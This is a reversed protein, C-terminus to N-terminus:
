RDPYNAFPDDEHEDGQGAAVLALEEETLPAAPLVLHASNSDDEHVEVNVKDPIAIGFEKLIAAKPDAVLRTRFDPDAVAKAIIQEQMKEM